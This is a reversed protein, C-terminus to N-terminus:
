KITPGPDQPVTFRFTAGHRPDSTARAKGDHSQVLHKVISLGLGASPTLATAHSAWRPHTRQTRSGGAGLSCRTFCYSDRIGLEAYTPDPLHGAGAGPPRVRYRVPLM